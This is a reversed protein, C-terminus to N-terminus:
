LFGLEVEKLFKEKLLGVIKKVVNRRIELELPLNPDQHAENVRTGVVFRIRDADLFALILDLAPSPAQT